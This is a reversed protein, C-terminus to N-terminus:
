KEQNWLKLAALVTDDMDAYTYRALRGGFLTRHCNEALANYKKLIDMNRVDNIPYYSEKGMEYKDPYEYTM